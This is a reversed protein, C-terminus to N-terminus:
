NTVEELEILWSNKRKTKKIVKLKVDPPLLVEEEYKHVSFPAIYKGTKSHIIFGTQHADEYKSYLSARSTSTFSSFVVNKGEEFEKVQEDPLLVVRHVVGSRIRLKDLAGNLTKIFPQYTKFEGSDPSKERMVKNLDRYFESTYFGLSLLEIKTLGCPEKLRVVDIPQRLSSFKNELFDKLESSSMKKIEERDKAKIKTEILEEVKKFLGNPTMKALETCEKLELVGEISDLDYRDLPTSNKLASAIRSVAYAISQAQSTRGSLSKGDYHMFILYVLGQRELSERETEANIEKAFKATEVLNKPLELSQGALCEICEASAQTEVVENKNSDAACWESRPIPPLDEKEKQAFSLNAFHLCILLPAFFLKKSHPGASTM